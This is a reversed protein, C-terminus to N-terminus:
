KLREKISSALDTDSLPLTIRTINSFGCKEKAFPIILEDMDYKTELNECVFSLPVLVVPTTPNMTGIYEETDPGLWELKGIKSQYCVSYDFGLEDAIRKASDNISKEYTDGREIFLKPISHASYILHPKEINNEECHQKILKVWFSTFSPSEHFNEKIRFTIDRYKRQMEDRLDRLLGNTCISAQPFLPVIILEDYTGLQAMRNVIARPSPSTYLFAAVVHYNSGLQQKLDKALARGAEKLPTGGMNEYKSWSDRYRKSCIRWAIFYRLPLPLPLIYEDRFMETLFQKMEGLSEPGGMNVLLVGKM